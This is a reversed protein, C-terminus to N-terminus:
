QPNYCIIFKSGELPVFGVIGQVNMSVFNFKWIATSNWTFFLEEEKGLEITENCDTVREVGLSPGCVAKM